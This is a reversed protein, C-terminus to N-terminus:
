PDVGMLRRVQGDNALVLSAAKNLRDMVSVGVGKDPVGDVVLVSVGLDDMRRLSMYLQAAMQDANVAQVVLGDVPPLRTGLYGVKDTTGALHQMLAGFAGESVEPNLLYVQANPSYHRYRTGPSRRKREEPSSQQV